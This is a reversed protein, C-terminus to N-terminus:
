VRVGEEAARNHEDDGQPGSKRRDIAAVAESRGYLVLTDGPEVRTAGGPAGLYTGDPQVIGLVRLGEGPLDLEELRQNAVWDDEEVLLEAVTYEGSIRLLAAYDRVDLDTYRALARSIARELLRDFAASRALALLAALGGVLLLIRWLAGRGGAGAFSLILTTVVSIVGASGILMLLMVVRRRVPHNVVAEAERTTFGVGTLASRVQFRAAERSLGTLTLVVTAVRMVLLALLIVVLLSAAAFV